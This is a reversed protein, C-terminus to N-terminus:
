STVADLISQLCWHSYRVIVCGFWAEVARVVEETGIFWSVKPISDRDLRVSEANCTGDVALARVYCRKM